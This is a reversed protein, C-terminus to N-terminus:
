RRSRAESPRKRALVDRHIVRVRLSGADLANCRSARWCEIRETSVGGVDSAGDVVYRILREIVARGGPGDGAAIDWVTPADELIELGASRMAGALRRGATSGGYAPDAVSARDMRHHYAALVDAGLAPDDTPEFTTVGDYTLALHAIGGPRLLAAVRAALRDLPLLDAIAHGLVLDVTGDAPGGGLHLPALLNGVILTVPEVTGNTQHGVVHQATLSSQGLLDADLDVAYAALPRSTIWRTARQLAAGTGSGLDVVTLPHAPPNAAAWAQITAVARKDLAADDYRGRAALWAAEFREM